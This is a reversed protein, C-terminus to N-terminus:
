CVASGESCLLASLSWATAPYWWSGLEELHHWSVTRAPVLVAPRSDSDLCHTKRGLMPPPVSLLSSSGSPAEWVPAGTCAQGQASAILSSPTDLRQSVRTKVLAGAPSLVSVGPSQEMACCDRGSMAGLNQLPHQLLSTKESKGQWPELSQFGAALLPINLAMLFFLRSSM